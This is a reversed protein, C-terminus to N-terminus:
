ATLTATRIRAAVALVFSRLCAEMVRPASTAEGTVTLPPRYTGVVSLQSGHGNLPSLELDAELPQLPSGSAVPRWRIPLLLGDRLREAGEVTVFATLADADGELAGEARLTVEWGEGGARAPPPLWPGPPGALVASAVEWPANLHTYFYVHKRM